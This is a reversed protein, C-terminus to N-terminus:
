KHLSFKREKSAAFMILLRYIDQLNKDNINDINYEFNKDISIFFNNIDDFELYLKGAIILKADKFENEKILKNFYEFSLKRKRDAYNYIIKRSLRKIEYGNWSGFSNKYNDLVDLCFDIIISENDHEILLGINDIFNANIFINRAKKLIQKTQRKTLCHWGDFVLKIKSLNSNRNNYIKM